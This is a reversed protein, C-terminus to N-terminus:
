SARRNTAFWSQRGAEYWSRQCEGGFKATSRAAQRIDGAAENFSSIVEPDQRVYDVRRATDAIQGALTIKSIRM